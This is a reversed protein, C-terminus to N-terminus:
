LIFSTEPTCLFTNGSAWIMKNGAGGETVKIAVHM